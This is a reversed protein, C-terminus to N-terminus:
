RTARDRRVQVAHGGVDVLRLPLVPAAPDDWRGDRYSVAVRSVGGLCLRRRRDTPEPGQPPLTLVELWVAATATEEDVDIALLNAENLAVGLGQDQLATFPQHDTMGTDDLVSRGPAGRIGAVELLALAM